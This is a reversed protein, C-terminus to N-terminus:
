LCLLPANLVPKEQTERIENKKQCMGLLTFSLKLGLPFTNVNYYVLDFMLRQVTTAFM